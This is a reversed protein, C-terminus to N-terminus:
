TYPIGLYPIRKFTNVYNLYISTLLSLKSMYLLSSCNSLSKLRNFEKLNPKAIERCIRVFHSKFTNM